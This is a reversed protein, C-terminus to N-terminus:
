RHVKQGLKIFVGTGHLQMLGAGGLVEEAAMREGLTYVYEGTTWYHDLVVSGGSVLNPLITELAKRTGSFNDTDAFALLVPLKSLRAPATQAIDGIVLEVGVPELYARVSTLDAFVCRPHVYMDLVSQRPPFGSWTDFALIKSRLGLSAVVRALWATTGGKFSGLEVVAGELGAAAAARLCQFLHVRTHPHGTAYSPVMAPADLEVYLPDRFDLHATGALVVDPPPVPDGTLDIYARLLYEKQADDCVVLLDPKLGRLAAWPKVRESKGNPFQPDFVGVVEREFGRAQLTNGLVLAAPTFGMLAIRDRGDRIVRSLTEGILEEEFPTV